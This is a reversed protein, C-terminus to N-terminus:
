REMNHPQIQLYLLICAPTPTPILRNELRSIPYNGFLPKTVVEGGGSACVVSPGPESHPSQILCSSVSQKEYLLICWWCGVCEVFINIRLACALTGRTEPHPGPRPSM